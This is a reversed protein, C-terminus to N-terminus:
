ARNGRRGSPRRRGPRRGHSSKPPRIGSARYKALLSDFRAILGRTTAEPEGLAQLSYALTELTSLCEARPERRLEGYHSKESPILILRRLKLLWANRWWIAKAQSWTGDLLVIGELQNLAAQADAQPLPAGKKDVPVLRPALEARPAPVGTIGSGLYLVGWRKPDAKPDDTVARLNAWSLGVKVRANPLSAAILPATGLLHDPEQPHQLVLTQLRTELPVCESCVCLAQPKRCNPCETM